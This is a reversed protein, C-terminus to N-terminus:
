FFKGIFGALKGLPGGGNENLKEENGLFNFVLSRVLASSAIKEDMKADEENLRPVIDEANHSIAFLTPCFLEELKKTVFGVGLRSELLNYLMGYKGTLTPIADVFSAAIRQDPIERMAVNLTGLPTRSLTIRRTNPLEPFILEIKYSIDGHSDEVAEAIARVLYHEGCLDIVSEKYSYFGLEIKIECAGEVSTFFLREGERTFRFSKIGGQYNGQMLRVFLPFVGQNNKSCIYEDLLPTFADPFPEKKKFPLISLIGRKREKPTIWYRSTFFSKCKARLEAGDRMSRRIRKGATIDGLTKRVVDLAAGKSFLENNGSNIVVVIGCKPSIWVNQGFMGNFLFDDGNKNVWFHYGYNFDGSEPKTISHPSTAENIIKRSLIRRGQWIGGSLLLMGLRAFSEASLYLGFGGKLIGEPSKEWLPKKIGLPTFLRDSLFDDASIGYEINCVKEAIHMLIYSNMSNYAFKEGPAFKPDAEFFARTWEVESVVGAESFTSGSSMSLLHGITLEAYNGNAKIEPFFDLVRMGTHLKGDDILLMILIACVSKSMSHALHPMRPNFGPRSAEAIIKGGAAIVISHVNANEEAELRALLDTIVSSKIGVDEPNAYLDNIGDPECLTTKTPSYPIPSPFDKYELVLNSLLTVLNKKYSEM